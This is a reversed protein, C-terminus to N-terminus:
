GRRLRVTLVQFPGFELPVAGDDVTLDAAPGLPQELLDDSRASTVAFGPRLLTATRSGLSEYLRVVVDGSRDDALKVAEVVVGDGETDVVPTAPVSGPGATGRALHVPLNLAYGGAVADSVRAGPLLVVTQTHAGQDAEPDPALPARLLSIGVTTAAGGGRRPVAAADYGYTADTLLAHGYGPEGVHVWRHASVEFRAHDWSTNEHTPRQVSGFQIEATSHPAAVDLDVRLKLLREREHWDSETTIAVGPDGARLTLTQTFTSAETSRVVVVSAEHPGDATVTVSDAATLDEWRNRSSRDLDWADFSNPADTSLRLVAGRSGPALAERGARLDLVSTLLGDADLAVRTLGNDLVLDGGAPTGTVRVPSTGSAAAAATADALPVVASPGVAVLGGGDPLVATRARPSASFVAGDPGALAARASDALATLEAAITEYDAEAQEHVWHISSGPLIDHFQLLLVRQWIRDLQDYPYAAGTHVAAATAWLEAERLLHESRRNGAKTRAQSTYTGRHMELYLEGRWVPADPYEARAAAFFEDPTSHVVRPAGELDAFRTIRALMERTPGGGGDGYGYPLLTHSVRGLDADNRVSHVLEDGTVMANYTDVPPFHTFVRTGDIGEWWFTHHPFRNTRNWSIKQTLFWELGALRALQPYAATYGFSDPLWAGTCAAGFEDRFFRQGHVFQRALAEGGPLNGDSEVWMGGVPVWRGAGAASQMRKYTEPWRDRVWAYQQAQSCAFVFGPEADALAVVNAFTRAVKRETERVPWLWASDIHAHGVAHVTGASANAPRSLVARLESRAAAAGAPVDGPDLRDCARDLAVRIEHRRPDHLHLAHMLERLVEMDLVLERVEGDVVVVEARGFRYRPALSMAARSGVDVQGGAADTERTGGSGAGVTEVGPNAAAEVLWDLRGGGEPVPLWRNRPNLAKVPVGAPDFVLAEAQFGPGADTFGIDVVAEVHRGAWDAPVEGTVRFWTTSWPPGWPTGPQFPAYTAALAAEVPVPEGDVHWATVTLPHRAVEETGRIRADLWRDIRAEVELRDAHM